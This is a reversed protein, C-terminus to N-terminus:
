SNGSETRAFVSCKRLFHSLSQHWRGRRGVAGSVTVFDEKTMYELSRHNTTVWASNLLHKSQQLWAHFKHLAVIVYIENDRVPLARQGHSKDGQLKRSFFAVPFLPCRCGQTPDDPEPCKCRRQELVDGVAVDSADTPIWFQWQTDPIYLQM